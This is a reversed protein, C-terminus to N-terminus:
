DEDEDEDEGSILAELVEITDQIAPVGDQVSNMIDLIGVSAIRALECLNRSRKSESVRLPEVAIALSTTATEIHRMIEPNM